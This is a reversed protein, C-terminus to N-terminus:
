RLTLKQKDFVFIKERPPLFFDKISMVTTTYALDPKVEKTDALSTLLTFEHEGDARKVPVVVPAQKLLEDLLPSINKKPLSIM